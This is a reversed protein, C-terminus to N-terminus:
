ASKTQAIPWKDPSYTTISFRTWVCSLRSTFPVIQKTPTFPFGVQLIQSAALFFQEESNRTENKSKWGTDRIKM